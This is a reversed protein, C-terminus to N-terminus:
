RRGKQKKALAALHQEWTVPVYEGRATVNFPHKTGEPGSFYYDYRDKQYWTGGFGPAWDWDVGERHLRGAQDRSDLSGKVYGPRTSPNGTGQPIQGKPMNLWGAGGTQSGGAPVQGPIPPRTLAGGIGAGGPVAGGGVGGGIGGGGAPGIGADLLRGQADTLAGGLKQQNARYVDALNADLGGIQGTLDNLSGQLAKSYDHGVDMQALTTGGSGAVGRAARNAFMNALTSRRDRDLEGTTSFPNAPDNYQFQLAKVAADRKAKAAINDAGIDASDSAFIGENKLTQGYDFPQAATRAAAQRVAPAPAPATTYGQNKIYKLVQGRQPKFKFRSFPQAM